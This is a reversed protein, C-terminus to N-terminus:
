DRPVERFKDASATTKAEVPRPPAVALPDVAVGSGLTRDLVEVPNRLAAKVGLRAARQHFLATAQKELDDAQAALKDDNLSAAVERLRLCVDLRRQYADQEAKLAEAMVVPDMPGLIVPPRAPVSGFTKEAEPKPDASLSLLRGFWSPKSEPAPPAPDAAAVTGTALAASLGWAAYRHM